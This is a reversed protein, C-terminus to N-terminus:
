VLAADELRCKPLMECVMNSGFGLYGSHIMGLCFSNRFTRILRDNFGKMCDHVDAAVHPGVVDLADGKGEVVMNSGGCVACGGFKHKPMSKGM